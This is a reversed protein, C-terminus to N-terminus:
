GYGKSYLNTLTSTGGYRRGTVHAPRNYTFDGLFDGADKMARSIQLDGLGGMTISAGMVVPRMNQSVFSWEPLTNRLLDASKDRNDRMLLRDLLTSGLIALRCLVWMVCYCTYHSM